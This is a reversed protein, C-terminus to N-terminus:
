GGTEEATLGLRELIWTSQRARESSVARAASRVAGDASERRTDGGVHAAAKAAVRAALEAVVRAHDGVHAADAPDAASAVAEIAARNSDGADAAVEACSQAFDIVDSLTWPLQRLLRGRRAVVKSDSCDQLMEGGLEIVYATANVWHSVYEPTTAHIGTLCEILEGKAEVWEGPGDATPLPWEFDSYPGRGDATLFKVYTTM